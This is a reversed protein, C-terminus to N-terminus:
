FDTYVAYTSLVATYRILVKEINAIQYKLKKRSVKLQVQVQVHLKTPLSPIKSALFVHPQDFPKLSHHMFM